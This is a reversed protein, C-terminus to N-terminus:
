TKLNFGLHHFTVYASFMEVGFGVELMVKGRKWIRMVLAISHHILVKFFNYFSHLNGISYSHNDNSISFDKAM